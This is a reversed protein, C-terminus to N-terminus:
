PVVQFGAAVAQHQRENRALVIRQRISECAQAVHRGAAGIDGSGDAAPGAVRHAQWPTSVSPAAYPMGMTAVPSTSNGRGRGAADQLVDDGADALPQVM